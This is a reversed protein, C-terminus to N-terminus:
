IVHNEKKERFFFVEIRVKNPVHRAAALLEKSPYPINGSANRRQRERPREV